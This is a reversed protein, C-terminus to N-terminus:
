EKKDTASVQVLCGDTRYVLVVEILTPFVDLGGDVADVLLKRYITEITHEIVLANIDVVKLRVIHLGTGLGVGGM